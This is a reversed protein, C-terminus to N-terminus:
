YKFTNCAYYWMDKYKNMQYVLSQQHSLMLLLVTMTMEKMKKYKRWKEHSINDDVCGIERSWVVVLEVMLNKLMLANMVLWAKLKDNDDSFSQMWSIIAVEENVKVIKQM